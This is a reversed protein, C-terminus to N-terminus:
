GAFHVAPAGGQEIRAPYGRPHLAKHALSTVEYAWWRARFDWGGRGIIFVAGALTAAPGTAHERNVQARRERSLPPFLKGTHDPEPWTTLTESIESTAYTTLILDTTRHAWTGPAFPRSEGAQEERNWERWGRRVEYALEAAIADPIVVIERGLSDVTITIDEARLEPVPTVRFHRAAHEINGAGLPGADIRTRFATVDEALSTM